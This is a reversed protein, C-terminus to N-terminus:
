RRYSSAIADPSCPQYPEKLGILDFQFHHESKAVVARDAASRQWKVKNLSCAVSLVISVVKRVETQTYSWDDSDQSDPTLVYASGDDDGSVM